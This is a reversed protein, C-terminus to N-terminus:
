NVEEDFKNGIVKLVLNNNFHRKGKGLMFCSEEDNWEVIDVNTNLTNNDLVLTNKVVDNEFIKKGNRDDLGTYQCITELIVEYFGELNYITTGDIFIMKCQYKTFYTSIFCQKDIIVIQGEVWENNDKRKAKFLIERTM